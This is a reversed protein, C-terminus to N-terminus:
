PGGEAIATLFILCHVSFFKSLVFELLTLINQPLVVFLVKLGGCPHNNTRLLTSVTAYYLSELVIKAAIPWCQLTTGM